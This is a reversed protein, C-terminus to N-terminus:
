KSMIGPQYKKDSCTFIVNSGQSYLYRWINKLFSLTEHDHYKLIKGPGSAKQLFATSLTLLSFFIQYSVVGPRSFPPLLSWYKNNYSDARIILEWHRHHEIWLFVTGIIGAGVISNTTNMIAGFTSSKESPDEVEDEGPNDLAEYTVQFLVTYLTNYVPSYM